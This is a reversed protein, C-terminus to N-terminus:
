YQKSLGLSQITSRPGWIRLRWGDKIVRDPYPVLPRGAEDYVLTVLLGPYERHVDDIRWGAFVEGRVLLYIPDGRDRFDPERYAYRNYMDEDEAIEKLKRAIREGAKGDGYPNEVTRIRRVIEDRNNLVNDTASAIRHPDDGVLFNGGLLITEPRETNRRLTICPVGLTFAEEQVGGSDTFVMLAGGLLSIFDFYGLPPVARVWPSDLLSGLGADSLRKRTRPHVPFVVEVGFRGAAEFVGKLIRALRVPRDVNEARHLTLLVYDGNVGLRTMVDGRIKDVRSSVSLVVDVVTNGTVSVRWPEVGEYLLNVAALGSPAFLVNAVSDAVVRNVEEPMSRDFSRLGAEVHAFVVGSKVAALGAGVVTNTDGQAVLTGGKIAKTISEIGMIIKAVQIGHNGSRIDLNFDPEPISFEKFFLHSLVYDYHQGSWIFIFNTNARQLVWIIPVLKIIEPRTGAVVIITKM